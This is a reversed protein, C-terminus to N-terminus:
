KPRGSSRSVCIDDRLWELVADRSIRIARGIRQVGPIKGERIADYVSKRDMRLLDALEAVKLVQPLETEVHRPSCQGQQQHSHADHRM